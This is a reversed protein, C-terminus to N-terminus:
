PKIVSFILPSNKEYVLKILGRKNKYTIRLSPYRKQGEDILELEYLNEGESFDSNWNCENKIIKFATFDEPKANKKGDLIYISDPTIRFKLPIYFFTNEHDGFDHTEFLLSDPCKSQAYLCNSLLSFIFFLASQFYKKHLKKM